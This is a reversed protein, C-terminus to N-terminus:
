GREKLLPCPHSSCYTGPWQRVFYFFDFSPEDQAAANALVTVLVICVLAFSSRFLTMAIPRFGARGVAPSPNLIEHHRLASCFNISHTFM